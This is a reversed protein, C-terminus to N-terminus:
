IMKTYEKSIIPWMFLFFEVIVGNPRPAKGKVMAELSFWLEEEIIPVNLRRKMLVLIQDKMCSLFAERAEKNNDKTDQKAYLRAYFEKSCEGIEVISSINRGEDDELKTILSRFGREKFSVFFEKTTEHGKELWKMKSRRNLDYMKKEEFQKLQDLAKDMTAKNEESNPNAQFERQAVDFQSKMSNELMKGEEVKGECLVKYFGLTKHLKFLFPLTEKLGNWLRIMKAIAIPNNLLKKNMCFISRRVSNPEGMRNCVVPCHNSVGCDRKMEHNVISGNQWAGMGKPAYLKDLRAWVKIEDRCRNDWSYRL